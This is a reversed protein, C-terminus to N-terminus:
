KKEYEERNNNIEERAKKILDNDKLLKRIYSMPPFSITREPCANACTVCAVMCNQPSVVVPKKKEYDFKYVGRGCGTVCLGCGICVDEEIVCSAVHNNRKSSWAM